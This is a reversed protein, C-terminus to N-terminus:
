IDMLIGNFVSSIEEYNEYKGLHGLRRAECQGRSLKRIIWLILSLSIYIYDDQLLYFRSVEFVVDTFHSYTHFDCLKDVEPHIYIYIYM